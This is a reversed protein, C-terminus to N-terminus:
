MGFVHGVGGLFCRAMIPLVHHREEYSDEKALITFRSVQFTM